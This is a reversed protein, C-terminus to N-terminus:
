PRQLLMLEVRKLTPAQPQRTHRHKTPPATFRDRGSAKVGDEGGFLEQSEGPDRTVEM